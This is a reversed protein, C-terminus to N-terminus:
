DPLILTEMSVSENCKNSRLTKDTRWLLIQYKTLVSQQYKTLVLLFIFYYFLSYFSIFILLFIFRDNLIMDFIMVLMLM